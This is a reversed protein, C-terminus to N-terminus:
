KKAFSSFVVALSFESPLHTVANVGSGLAEASSSGATHVHYNPLLATHHHPAVEAAAADASLVATLPSNGISSKNLGDLLSSLSFNREYPDVPDATVFPLWLDKVFSLVENWLPDILDEWTIYVSM